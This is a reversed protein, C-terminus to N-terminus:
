SKKECGYEVCLNQNAEQEQISNVSPRNMLDKGSTDVMKLFVVM